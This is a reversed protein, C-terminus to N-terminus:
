QDHRVPEIAALHKEPLETLGGDGSQLRADRDVLRVDVHGAHDRDGERAERRKWAAVDLHELLRAESRVDARQFVIEDAVHPCHQPHQGAGDTHHEEDRARVHRIQEEDSGLGPLLLQRNTGREAGARPPDSSFQQDLAHNEAQKAPKDTEGKGRARQCQEHGESRSVQRAEFVDREVDGHQRERDDNRHGCSKEEARDRYELIGAASDRRRKAGTSARGPLL